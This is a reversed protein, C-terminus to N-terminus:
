KDGLNKGRVTRCSCGEQDSGGLYSPNCVQAVAGALPVYEQWHMLIVDDEFSAEGEQRIKQFVGQFGSGKM